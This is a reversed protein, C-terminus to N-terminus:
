IAMAPIYLLRCASRADLVLDSRGEVDISAAWANGARTAVRPVNWWPEAENTDAPQRELEPASPSIRTGDAWQGCQWCADWQGAIQQGCSSCTWPPLIDTIKAFAAALVKRAQKVEHRRVYIPVGGTAIVIIGFGPSSIPTALRLKLGKRQWRWEPLILTHFMWVLLLRSLDM